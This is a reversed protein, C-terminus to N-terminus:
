AAIVHCAASKLVSAIHVLPVVTVILVAPRYKTVNLPYAAEVLAVLTSVRTADPPVVKKPLSTVSSPEPPPVKEM